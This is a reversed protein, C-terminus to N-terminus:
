SWDRVRSSTSAGSWSSDPDVWHGTSISARRHITRTHVWPATSNLWGVDWTTCSSRRARGRTPSSREQSTTSWVSAIPRAPRTTSGCWSDDFRVVFAGSEAALVDPAFGDTASSLHRMLDVEIDLIEDVEDPSSVKVVFRRKDACTLLFNRDREGPLDSLTGELGFHAQLAERVDVEAVVPRSQIRIV